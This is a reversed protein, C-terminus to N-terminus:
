SVKPATCFEWNVGRSGGGFFFLLLFFRVFVMLETYKKRLFIGGNTSVCNNKYRQFTELFLEKRKDYKMKNNNQYKLKYKKDFNSV